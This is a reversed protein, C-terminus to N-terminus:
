GAAAKLVRSRLTPVGPGSLDNLAHRCVPVVMLLAEVPRGVEPGNRNAWDAHSAGLRLGRRNSKPM